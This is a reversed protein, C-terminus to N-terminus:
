ANISKTENGVKAKLRKVQSAARYDDLRLDALSQGYELKAKATEVDVGALKGAAWVQVGNLATENAIHRGRDVLSLTRDTAEIIGMVTLAVTGFALMLILIVLILLTTM